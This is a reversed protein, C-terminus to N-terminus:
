HIINRSIQCNCMSYTPRVFLKFKEKKQLGMERFLLPFKRLFKRLAILDFFFSKPFNGTLKQSIWRNCKLFQDRKTLSLSISIFIDCITSFCVSVWLWIEFDMSDESVNSFTKRCKSILESRESSDGLMNKGPSVNLYNNTVNFDICGVSILNLPNSQNEQIAGADRYFASFFENWRSWYWDLIQDFSNLFPYFQIRCSHIPM